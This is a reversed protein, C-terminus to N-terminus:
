DSIAYRRCLEGFQDPASEKLAVWIDDLDFERNEAFARSRAMRIPGSFSPCKAGPYPLFDPQVWNTTALAHERSLLGRKIAVVCFLSGGDLIDPGGSELCFDRSERQLRHDLEMCVGESGFSTKM